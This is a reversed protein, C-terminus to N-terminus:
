SRLLNIRDPIENMTVADKVARRLCCTFLIAVVQIVFIAVGIWVMSDLHQELYVELHLCGRTYVFEYGPKTETDLDDGCTALHTVNLLCCSRPVSNRFRGYSVNQRQKNWRSDFWDTYSEAGCCESKEQIRDIAKRVDGKRNYKNVIQSLFRKVFYTVDFHGFYMWAGLSVEAIKIFALLYTFVKLTSYSERIAGYCGAFGVIAILCGVAIIIATASTFGVETINKFDGYVTEGLAGIAILGIGSLWFVLNFACMLYKICRMKGRVHPQM